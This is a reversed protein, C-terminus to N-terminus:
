NLYNFLSLSTLKTFSAQTAQLVTMTKQLETITTSIDTDEIKSRAEKREVDANALRTTELELRAGRAGVSSRAVGVSDLTTKLETIADGGTGGNRLSDALGQVVSFMDTTGTGAANPLNGFVQDGTVTAHVAAGDGVPIAGPTGTGAYSISGDAAKAYAVDGNAGGFLPAGTSDTTNALAMLSDVMADLEAAYVARQDAPVTDNKVAIAIERARQLQDNVQGLTSDSATLLSQARAINKSDQESNAAARTMTTLQRYGAADDSPTNIKKETSLQTQLKSARESLSAMSAASSSYFLSSSIRM